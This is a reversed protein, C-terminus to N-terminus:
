AREEEEAGAAAPEPEEAAPQEAEAATAQRKAKPEPKRVILHRFVTDSIKLTAEMEPVRAPDIQFDTLVYQGERLHRVEYALRRRGWVDTKRSVGGLNEILTGVSAVAAQLQEDDLEPRVIYLIEYDRLM